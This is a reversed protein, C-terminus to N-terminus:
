CPGLSPAADLATPVRDQGHALVTAAYIVCSAPANANVVRLRRGRLWTRFTWTRVFLAYAFLMLGLGLSFVSSFIAFFM